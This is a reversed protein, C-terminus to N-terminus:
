PVPEGIMSPLQVYPAPQVTTDAAGIFTQTSGPKVNTTAVQIFDGVNLGAIRFHICGGGPGVSEISPRGLNVWHGATFALVWVNTFTAGPVFHPDNPGVGLLNGSTLDVTVTGEANVTARMQLAVTFRTDRTTIPESTKAIEEQTPEAQVACSSLMLCGLVAFVRATM